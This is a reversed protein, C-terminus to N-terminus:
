RIGRASSRALAMPGRSAHGHCIAVALADAEDAPPSEALGLLQQVMRQVQAKSAGGHGVVAGKVQTPAYEATPLDVMGCALLAVGRAHGLLLASRVNRAAFVSELAAGAPTTEAIVRELAAFTGALRAALASQPPRIVGGVVRRLRSGDFEVVGYGTARSGPDIGLIRM